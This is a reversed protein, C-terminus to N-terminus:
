IDDLIINVTEDLMSITELFNVGSVKKLGNYYSERIGLCLIM